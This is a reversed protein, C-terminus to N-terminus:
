NLCIIGGILNINNYFFKDLLERYFKEWVERPFNAKVYDYDEKTNLYKPVGKM